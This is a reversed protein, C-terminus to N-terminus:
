FRVLVPASSDLNSQDGLQGYFNSGWCRVTGDFLLACTHFAGASLASVGSLGTVQVPVLSDVLSGNGLQGFGNAGWCRVTGDYLQACAHFSGAVIDAVDTLGSVLTPSPQNVTNGTGLQGYTNNGWCHPHNSYSVACTFFTGASIRRPGNSISVHEPRNRPSGTTGIGLQGFGNGGWCYLSAAGIACAHNAGAAIATVSDLDQVQRPTKYNIYNGTGLQGDANNGWCFAKDSAFASCTFDAHSSIFIDVVASSPESVQVPVTSPNNAGDGLQGYTNDGWCTVRRTQGSDITVGCTHSASAAIRNMPEPSTVRVPVNSEAHNGQGLQGADGDGWCYAAGGDLLACTHRDGVSIATVARCASTDFLCDDGCTLTGYGLGWTTCDQGNLDAGECDESSTIIGDGCISVCVSPEGDCEWGPNVQCDSSCGPHQRSGPDCTEDPEIVENGCISVCGSQDFKCTESCVLEGGGLYGLTECTVGALDAVECDETDADIVGNGCTSAVCGTTDFECQLTCALTGGAFGQTECTAGALETGDCEEVGGGQVVGDGCDDATFCLSTDFTCDTRCSLVGALYGHDTCDQGALDDGDCAEGQQRDGDGCVAPEPPGDPIDMVLRCGAGGTLLWAVLGALCLGSRAKM